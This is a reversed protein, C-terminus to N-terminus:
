GQPPQPAMWSPVAPAPPADPTEPAAPPAPPAPPPVPDAPEAPVEPDAPAEVKMEEYRKHIAEDFDSENIIMFGRRTNAAIKVTPTRELM